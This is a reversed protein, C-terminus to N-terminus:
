HKSKTHLIDSAVRRHIDDRTLGRPFTSKSHIGFDVWLNSGNNNIRFCDGFWTNYMYIDLAM